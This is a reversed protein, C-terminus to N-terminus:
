VPSGLILRSKIEDRKLQAIFKNESSFKKESRIKKIFEIIIDKDYLSESFDFIHTEINVAEVEKKFSPCHGVNAMGKMKKDDILVRVAYVGVPPIVENDPRINATPYGLLKGRGDGRVVKGMVSVDRGLFRAALRLKGNLILQRIRSSGIKKDGGQVSSIANVKFGYQRGAAEFLELTGQRNQGFRFDDGVFVEKPQISDMLYRKVFQQPSLQSFKKTFRVVVCAAVDLHEILKLRHSLSVVYPLYNQPHLIQVPHPSFTMVVAEGKIAKAREVAMRILKQHGIHVGDFVGIALVANQFIKKVKGIGYIVRM